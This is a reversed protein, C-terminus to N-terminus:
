NMRSLSHYESVEPDVVFNLPTWGMEKELDSIVDCGVLTWENYTFGEFPICLMRRVASNAGDCGIVYRAEIVTDMEKGTSGHKPDHVMVRVGDQERSDDIGVCRIGFRVEVCDYKRLEELIIEAM